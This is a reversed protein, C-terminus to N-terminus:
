LEDDNGKMEIHLNEGDVEYVRYRGNRNYYHKFESLKGDFSYKCVAGKYSITIANELVEIDCEKEGDFEFVPLTFKRSSYHADIGKKSVKYSEVTGDSTEFVASVVDSVTFDKLVYPMNAFGVSGISAAGPNEGEIKYNPAPSFPTSLCIESPCGKKHVRGLGSADYHLDANLDFELHYGGASMFVKHFDESTQILYNEETIVEEIDDDAFLYALYANSAVTIMYKDFYAYKECGMKSEIPYRNKVHHIPYTDLYKLACKVAMSAGHKFKGAMLADGKKKYRVAELEFYSALVMENFIFQNSRGGFAVEGTVSQMKLSLESAKDLREEITKLHIGDYGMPILSALLVRSMYDYLIPNNPDKYMGNEDYCLMQSSVQWDIFDSNNVGLYKGRVFDSVANFAAWNNVPTDPSPAIVGYEKWPDFDYFCDKWRKIEEKSFLDCKELAMLCHCIERVSFDNGARDKSSIKPISACCITMAERFTDILDLRIKHTLLIGINAVLRPFGHEKLGDKKVSDIYDLIKENDYALLAKEMIEIYNKKM